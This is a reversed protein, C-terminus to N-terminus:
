TLFAAAVRDERFDSGCIRSAEEIPRHERGRRVNHYYHSLGRDVPNRLLVIFKAEPLSEALRAAVLPHYMYFPTAEGTITGEPLNSRIPFMSQYWPLGKDYRYDFFHVEKNIAGVFQPHQLLYRYM